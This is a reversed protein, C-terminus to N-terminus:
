SIWTPEAVCWWGAWTRYITCQFGHGGLGGFLYGAVVRLRDPSLEVWDVAVLGDDGNVNLGRREFTAQDPLVEIRGGSGFPVVQLGVDVGAIVFIRHKRRMSALESLPRVFHMPSSEGACEAVLYGLAQEAQESTIPRPATLVFGAHVLLAAVMACAAVLRTWRALRSYPRSSADPETM